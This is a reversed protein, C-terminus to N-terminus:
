TKTTLSREAFQERILALKPDVYRQCFAGQSNKQYYRQYQDPSAQFELLPLVQTILPQPFASQLLEIIKVAEFSM